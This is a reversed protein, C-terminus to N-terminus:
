YISGNFLIIISKDKAKNATKLATSWKAKKMESIAKNALGFDKKNYYKSIKISSVKKTGAVLPKKKPLILGTKKEKKVVSQEEVVKTVTKNLPKPLPKLVDVLLKKKTEEKTQIPKKPPIIESSVKNIVGGLYILVIFFLIKKSM